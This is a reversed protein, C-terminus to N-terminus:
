FLLRWIHCEATCVIINWDCMKIKINSKPKPQMKDINAFIHGHIQLAYKYINSTYLWSTWFFFNSKKDFQFHITRAEDIGLCVNLLYLIEFASRHNGLSISVIFLYLMDHCYNAYSSVKIELNKTLNISLIRFKYFYFFVWRLARMARIRTAASPSDLDRQLRALMHHNNQPTKPNVNMASIHSAISPPTLNEMGNMGSLVRNPTGLRNCM